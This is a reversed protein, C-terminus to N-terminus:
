TGIVSAAASSVSFAPSRCSSGPGRRRRALLQREIRRGLVRLAQADAVEHLDAVDDVLLQLVTHDPLFFALAASSSATFRPLSSSRSKSAALLYLRRFAAGRGSARPLALKMAVPLRRCDRPRRHFLADGEVFSPQGVKQHRRLDDDRQDEEEPRRALRDPLRHQDLVGEAAVGLEDPEVIEGLQKLSGVSSRVRRPDGSTNLKSTAACRAPATESSSATIASRMM